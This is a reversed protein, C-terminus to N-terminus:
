QSLVSTRRLRALAVASMLGQPLPAPEDEVLAALIEGALPATILGRSGHATSVLLGPLAEGAADTVAGVIPLYDPSVCRLAARGQLRAPDLEAGGLAAHLEPALRALASLNDANDAVTTEAHEEHTFTAGATHMGARAPAVYTEGCLVARLASSPATAPLFTVQGRVGRLPVGRLAEFRASDAAGAVVVVSSRALCTEGDLARWVGASPERELRLPQRHLVLAIGPHAVQARCLAPPHVWGGGPFLLGGSPLAIGAVASAEDQGVPRMLAAPLGLAPLRAQRRREHEDHGLQLIPADSWADGDCPLLARLV